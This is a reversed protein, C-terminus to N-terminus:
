GCGVVGRVSANGQEDQIAVQLFGVIDFDNPFVLWWTTDQGSGEYCAVVEFCYVAELGRLLHGRLRECLGGCCVVACFEFYWGAGVGHELPGQLQMAKAMRLVRVGGSYPRLM